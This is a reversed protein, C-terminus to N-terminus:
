HGSVDTISSKLLSLSLQVCPAARVHDVRPSPIWEVYVPIFGDQVAQTSKVVKEEASSPAKALSM